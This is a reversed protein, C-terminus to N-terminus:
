LKIEDSQEAIARALFRFVIMRLASRRVDRFKMKSSGYTRAPLIVPVERIRLGKTHLETLSEYFWSYGDHLGDSILAPNFSRIRYARFAGTADYPIGLFLRTALHGLNTMARRHLNWGRLGGGPLFRSAVAVDCTALQNLLQPIYTRDHTLDADMTLLVEINAEAARRLAYKHASGVGLKRERSHLQVRSDHHALKSVIDGTGDPSNDDIVLVEAGPLEARLGEVLQEINASENYTPIAIMLRLSPAIM